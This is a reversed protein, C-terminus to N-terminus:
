QCVKDCLRYYQYIESLIYKCLEGYVATDLYFNRGFATPSFYKMNNDTDYFYRYSFEQKRQKIILKRSTLNKVTHNRRTMIYM